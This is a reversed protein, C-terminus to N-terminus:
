LDVPSQILKQSLIYIKYSLEATKNLSTRVQNDVVNNHVKVIENYKTELKPLNESLRIKKLLVRLWSMQKKFQFLV